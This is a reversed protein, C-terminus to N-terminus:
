ESPGGSKTLSSKLKTVYIYQAAEHGITKETEGVRITMPGNFPAVAIVTVRVKPFLGLGGLYRLLAPDHDSVEAVAASQGEQLEVLRVRSPRALTGDRSPIPAGHPDTTPHGLLHDIRDELEESLVHEWKEAEAHVQDLPVGLAETLYLEVLRHHRIVELAIKIGAKTLAVGQYPEHTVLKMEAMKKIMGTISAPAVDLREALATTNVKGQERQIEYVAKLYDEVAQTHM